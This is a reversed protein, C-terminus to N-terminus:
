SIPLEIFFTSGKGEGESEAWIKGNHEKIIQSAIYLGIGRGTVFTKKAADGREFVKGFLNQLNESSIGIGTDKASILVSQITKSVDVVVGGEDTYKVANDIINYLAAKLKEVDASIKVSDKSNNLKLFIGKTEAEPKIQEVVNSIIPGLETGPKLAVVNKGLQYQTIDLFENVMKILNQTQSEMKKITEQAGKPIRGFSGKILLDSYGMIISLPTRLHHQTALLFQNKSKDLAQLEEKAKKEVEYAKKIDEAMKEIQERQKVEKLIGKILLIGVIGVAILIGLNVSLDQIGSSLLTKILLFIWLLFILIETAVIRVDFLRYKIVAYGLFFPYLAVLFNGYPPIPIDYWLFFNFIGGGFGVISGILVYVIQARKEGSIKKYSRILLFISYLVLVCYVYGLYLHYLIGPDPWYSFFMKPRVDKVLLPTFSFLLIISAIVYTFYIIYKEKKERDLMVAIWHFYFVPILTSGISLIRTWFLALSADNSSQWQWYGVSWVAVALGLLSYLKNAKAKTNYSFVFLALAAAVLANILGSIAFIQM